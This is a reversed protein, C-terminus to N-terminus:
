HHDGALNAGSQMRDVSTRAAAAIDAWEQRTHCVRAGGLRSGTRDERKCVVQTSDTHSAPPPMASPPPPAAQSTASTDDTALAQGAGLLMGAAVAAALIRIM